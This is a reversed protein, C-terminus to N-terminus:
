WSCGFSVLSRDGPHETSPVSSTKCRKVVRFHPTIHSNHAISGNVTLLFGFFKKHRDGCSFALEVTTHDRKRRPNMGGDDNPTISFVLRCPARAFAARVSISDLLQRCKARRMAERSGEAVSAIAARAEAIAAEPSLTISRETPSGSKGVGSCMQLAASAAIRAPLVLYVGLDSSCM